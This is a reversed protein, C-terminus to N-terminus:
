SNVSSLQNFNACGYTEHLGAFVVKIKIKAPVPSHTSTGLDVALVISAESVSSASVDSVLLSSRIRTFLKVTIDAYHM